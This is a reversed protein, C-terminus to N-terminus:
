WAKFIQKFDNQVALAYKECTQYMEDIAQEVTIRGTSIKNKYEETMMQLVFNRCKYELQGAVLKRWEERHKPPITYKKQENM